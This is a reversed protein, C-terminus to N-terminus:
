RPPPFTRRPRAKGKAVGGGGAQPAGEELPALRAPALNGSRRGGGSAGRAAGPAKGALFGLALAAGAAAALLAERSLGQLAMGAPPLRLRRRLRRKRLVPADRTRAPPRGRCAAAGPRLRAAGPRGASAAEWAPWGPHPHPRHQSPTATGLSRRFTGERNLFSFCSRQVQKAVKHKQRTQSARSVSPPEECLPSVCVCVRVCVCLPLNCSSSPAPGPM